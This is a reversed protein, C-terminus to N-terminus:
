WAARIASKGVLRGHRKCGAIIILLERNWLPSTSVWVILMSQTSDLKKTYEVLLNPVCDDDSDDGTGCSTDLILGSQAALAAATTSAAM